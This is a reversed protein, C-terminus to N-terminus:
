TELFKSLQHNTEHPNELPAMHGAAGIIEFHSNPIHDALERMEQSTTISDHEGCLVLTPMTIGSLRQRFDGRQSMGWQAAAVSAPRAGDIVARSNRVAQADADVTTPAFLRPIMTDAVGQMGDALVKNAMLQRGRAVEPTDASARTDCLIWRAIREAAIERLEMAIYGGMSLGCVTIPEPINLANLLAVLDEAFQRMTFVDTEIASSSGFGRLDPAIIRHSKSLSDIQYRWMSHDLPFGHVLLVVPGSGQDVTYLDVSANSSRPQIEIKPM